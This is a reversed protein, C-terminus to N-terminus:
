NSPPYGPGAWMYPSGDPQGMVGWQPRYAAASYNAPVPTAVPAPGCGKGLSCNPGFSVSFQCGMLPVTSGLLAGWVACRKARNSAPMNRVGQSTGCGLLSPGSSSAYDFTSIRVRLHWLSHCKPCEGSFANM